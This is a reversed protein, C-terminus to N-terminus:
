SDGCGCLVVTLRSPDESSRAESHDCGCPFEEAVYNEWSDYGLQAWARSTYAQGMLTELQKHLEYMQASAEVIHSTLRRSEMNNIENM